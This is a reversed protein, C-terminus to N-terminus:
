KLGRIWKRFKADLNKFGRSSDAIKKVGHVISIKANLQPEKTYVPIKELRKIKAKANKMIDPLSRTIDRIYADANLYKGTAMKVLENAKYLSAYKWVKAMEKGVKPNDVIYGYKKFFYERWQSVGLEALGYGHYYASSEWSYIHPINLAMLSDESRDFYKRFSERAIQKVKEEDLFEGKM